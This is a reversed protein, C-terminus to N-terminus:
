AAPAPAPAVGLQELIELRDFHMHMSAVQDGEIECVGGVTFDLRRGTAPIDGGPTRLTGQHTGTVRGHFGLASGDEVIQAPIVQFDPFAEWLAQDWAVVQDVGQLYAGPVWKKCDPTWSATLAQVDQASAAALERRLVDAAKGMEVGGM